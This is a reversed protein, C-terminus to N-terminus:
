DGIDRRGEAPDQGSLPTQEPVKGTNSIYGTRTDETDEGIDRRGEAPDQSSVAPEDQDSVQSSKYHSSQVKEETM